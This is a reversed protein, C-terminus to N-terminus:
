ALSVEQVLKRLVLAGKIENCLLRLAAIQAQIIQKRRGNDVESAELLALHEAVKRLENIPDVSIM